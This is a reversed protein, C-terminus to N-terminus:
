SGILWERIALEFFDRALPHRVEGRMSLRIAQLDAADVTRKSDKATDQLKRHFPSCQTRARLYLEQRPFPM